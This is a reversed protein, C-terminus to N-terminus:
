GYGPSDDLTHVGGRDCAPDLSPNILSVNNVFALLPLFAYFHVRGWFFRRCSSIVKLLTQNLTSLGETHGKLRAVEEWIRPLDADGALGRM